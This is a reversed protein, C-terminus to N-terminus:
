LVVWSKNFPSIIKYALGVGGELSSLPTRLFDVNISINAQALKYPGLEFYGM